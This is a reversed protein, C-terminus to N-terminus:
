ESEFSEEDSQRSTRFSNVEGYLTTSVSELRKNTSSLRNMSDAISGIGATISGIGRTVLSSVRNLARISEQIEASDRGIEESRGRVTISVDNLNRMAELIQNGGLALENMGTSIEKLSDAVLHIGEDVRGFAEGSLEGEESVAGIAGVVSKLQQSIEKSNKSSAEALNRIESAVVAFGQGYEGAHAAEIAANMALMNTSSAITQIMGAMSLVHSIEEEMAGIKGVLQEIREGGRRATGVLEEAAQLSRGAVGNMSSVSSIMENISATSEEVMSMQFEIQEDLQRIKGDIAQTSDDVLGVTSDLKGVADGIEATSSSISESLAATDAATRVLEDKISLNTEAESKIVEINGRLNELFMNLSDALRGIEDESRKQFPRTLDREELVSINSELSLLSRSIGKAILTAVMFVASLLLLIVAGSILLSRRAVTDIQRDIVVFQDDMSDLTSSLTSEAIAIASKLQTVRLRLRDFETHNISLDALVIELLPQNASYFLITKATEIFNETAEELDPLRQARLTKLGRVATLSKQFEPSLRPLVTVETEIRSLLENSRETQALLVELQSSPPALLLKIVDSHEAGISRRLEYLLKRENEIKRIPMTILIYAGVSLAVAILVNFVIGFLKTRIKM